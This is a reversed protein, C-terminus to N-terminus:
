GMLGVAIEPTPLYFSNALGAKPPWRAPWPVVCRSGRGAVQGGQVREGGGNGVVTWRVSRSGDGPIRGRM